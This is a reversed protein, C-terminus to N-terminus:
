RHRGAGFPQYPSETGKSVTGFGYDVQDGKTYQEKATDATGGAELWRHPDWEGQKSWILPDMASVGPAALVYHGKPIVYTSSESPAAMAAPVPIDSIVKRLISHIPAHMRLTERIVAEMLPIEKTSEYTIERFTGDPNGFVKKQEEFLEASYVILHIM